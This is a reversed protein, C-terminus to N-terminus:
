LAAEGAPITTRVAFGSEVPGADFTGGLRTVRERMGALGRGPRVPAPAVVSTCGNVVSIEVASEEFRVDVRVAAGPAHKAVNTLAEQIIRYCASDLEATIGRPEGSMTLEVDVGVRRMVDILYHANNLGPETSTGNRDTLRLAADLDVFAARGITEISELLRRAGEPDDDVLRRAAGAHLLMVNLANGVIDHTERGIRRREEAAQEVSRLEAEAREAEARRALYESRQREVVEVGLMLAGLLCIALFVQIMVLNESAEPLMVADARGTIVVWDAAFAVAVGVQAVTRPGGRLAAWTLVLPVLYIMPHHWLLGPVLTVGTAVIMLIALEMRSVKPEHPRRRAWELIPTAVVLVGLADGLWWKGAISSWSVPIDGFMTATTAGIAAGIAPGIVLGCLVFNLLQPRLSLQHRGRYWCMLSAGVLPEVTNALVFGLAAAVSQGHTLDVFSEAVAVAALWLPWRSRPTLVLISLTLGAPPFFAAGAAPSALYSFPLLAGLAYLVALGVATAALILRDVATGHGGNLFPLRCEGTTPSTMPAIEPATTVRTRRGRTAAGWPMVRAVGRIAEAGVEAGVERSRVM